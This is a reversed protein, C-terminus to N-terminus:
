GGQDPRWRFVFSRPKLLALLPLVPLRLLWHWNRGKILLGLNGFIISYAAGPQGSSFAMLATYAVSKALLAPRLWAATPADPYVGARDQKLLYDMGFRVGVFGSSLNDPQGVIHAVLPRGDAVACPGKDAARLFFDTDESWRTDATFGGIAQFVDRRIIVNCSAFRTAENAQVAELFGPYIGLRVPPQESLNQPATTAVELDATQLFIMAPQAEDDIADLCAALTGPFWYDDSDLFALFRSGAAEAGTNRAAGPGANVQGLVRSASNQLTSIAHEAANMTGDTSGDDVVIVEVDERGAAETSAIARAITAQRNWAPIIVSLKLEPM